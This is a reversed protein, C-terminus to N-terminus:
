GAIRRRVVTSLVQAMSIADTDARGDRPHRLDAHGAEGKRIDHPRGSSRPAGVYESDTLISDSAPCAGAVAYTGLSVLAVFDAIAPNRLRAIDPANGHIVNIWAFSRATVGSAPHPREIITVSAGVSALHYALTAGVVGAGAIIGSPRRTM